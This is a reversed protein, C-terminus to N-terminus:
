VGVGMGVVVVVCSPSPVGAGACARAGAGAHLWSGTGACARVLVCMGGSVCIRMYICAYLYTHTHAQTCMTLEHWLPQSPWLSSNLCSLGRTEFLLITLEWGIINVNSSFTWHKKSLCGKLNFLWLPFSSYRWLALFIFFSVAFQLLM